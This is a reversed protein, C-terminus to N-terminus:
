QSVEAPAGSGSRIQELEARLPESGPHWFLYSGRRRPEVTCVPEVALAEAASGTETARGTLRYVGAVQRQAGQRHLHVIFDLATASQLAVAQSSVGALAGMAYLRAPVADASNAHLTSGSGAHGTNMATLMDMVEAGRCEGVALRTPRMRLAQRILEALNVAGQGEANPARAQLSVVHPHDPRLEAIDEVLVLREGPGAETLLAGLLTTKGTGTGGSILLNARRRVLFRLLTELEPTMMGWRTLDCLSPQAVTQLRISLLTGSQSLPPLLAHVRVGGDAQVDAAPYADDLRGGAALILRTALARVAADNALTLASRRLQGEAEYWIQQPGNVFIDTVGPEALLPQLPGLDLTELRLSPNKRSLHATDPASVESRTSQAQSGEPESAKPQNASPQPQKLAQLPVDFYRSRATRVVMHHALEYDPDSGVPVNSLDPVQAPDVTHPM